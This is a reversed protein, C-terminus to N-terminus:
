GGASEVHAGVLGPRGHHHGCLGPLVPVRQDPEGDVAAPAPDLRPRAHGAIDAGHGDLIYTGVALLRGVGDVRDVDLVPLAPRSRRMSSGPDAPNTVACAPSSQSATTLSATSRPQLPTSASDPMGPLTPATGM